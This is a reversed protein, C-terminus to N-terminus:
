REGDFDNIFWEKITDMENECQKHLVAYAIKQMWEGVWRGGRMNTWKLLDQGSVCLDKISQIPLKAKQREFYDRPVEVSEGHLVGYIKEVIYLVTAEYGYYDDITFPKKRRNAYAQEVHSLFRKEENSLKYARGLESATVCGFLLVAAWGEISTAFVDKEELMVLDKSFFPLATYLGSEVLLQAGTLPASSTFMKDLEVKIREVAIHQLASAQKKMATFTKEEITFNLAAAFRVARLMRLADEEFREAPIEVARLMRRQLDAQGGFYDILQGEKTMALANITFDRRRLDERLSKQVTSTEGTRYTTVEIPEGDVVVLVTGHEIGVDITNQFVKKVENPEAFTAIDIDKAEYGLLYDRVSGGVFVTEYGNNELQEVVYLSAKSMTFRTM